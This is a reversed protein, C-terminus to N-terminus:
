PSSSQRDAASPVGNRRLTEVEVLQGLKRCAEGLRYLRDGPLKEVIEALDQREADRYAGLIAQYAAASAALSAADAQDLTTSM